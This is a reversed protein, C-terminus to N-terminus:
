EVIRFREPPRRKANGTIRLIVYGLTVGTGVQLCFPYDQATAPMAAFVVAAFAAAGIIQRMNKKGEV